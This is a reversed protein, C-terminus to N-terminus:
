GSGVCHIIDVVSNVPREFILIQSIIFRTGRQYSRRSQRPTSVHTAFTLRRKGFVLSVTEPGTQRDRALRKTGTGHLLTVGMGHGSRLAKQLVRFVCMSVCVCVCVCFFSLFFSLFVWEGRVVVAIVVVVLGRGKVGFLVAM